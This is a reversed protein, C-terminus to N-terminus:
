EGARAQPAPLRRDRTERRAPRRRAEPRPLDCARGKAASAVIRAEAFPPRAAPRYPWPEAGTSRVLRAVFADQRRRAEAVALGHNLIAFGVEGYARTRLVGALASVGISGYTGTKGVVCGRLRGAALRQRLTGADVGAVPLVDVLSRGHRALEDELADLLAVAARPSLRNRLGAGAANRITIEQALSPPVAARAEREVAAPGGIRRSLRALINNSFSNLEKLLRLLPASRHEVLLRPDGTAALRARGFRLGLSAPGPDLLGPEAAAVALWAAPDTTGQLVRALRDAAGDPSWNFLLAGRGAPRLRGAVERLGLCRLSALVLLANETVFFPDAGAEVLLDGELRGRRLDGTALVRTPFRLDPGLRRILALTTAVKTVSAPHSPRDAALAALVRGSRARVYVGQDAGVLDRALDQFPPSATEDAAVGGPALLLAAVVALLARRWRM